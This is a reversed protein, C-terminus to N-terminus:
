IAGQKIGDIQVVPSFTFSVPTANTANSNGSMTVTGAPGNVAIITNGQQGAQVNTVIMGVSLLACQAATLGSLVANANVTTANLTQAPTGNVITVLFEKASSAAIAGRNVIIGTNATATLTCTQATTVIWNAHWSTGNQIGSTGLGASLGAIINAATDITDTMAGAGSRLVLGGALMAATVTIGATANTAPIVEGGCLTDGQAIPRSNAGDSILSKALM